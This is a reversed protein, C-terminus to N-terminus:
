NKGYTFGKKTEARAVSIHKIQSNDFRCMHLNAALIDTGLKGNRYKRCIIEALGKAESNENYYEDRYMMFIIDADQEISGSDRLDSMLPRKDNRQEVGRNLQSLVITPCDLERALNKVTRSIQTVRDVSEGKDNLLQLYDIVVLDVKRGVKHAIRRARPLLQGSTLSNTDDIWLARGKLKSAAAAVRSFGDIDDYELQGSELRGHDVRGVSALMRTTLSPRAMELSFVVVFGGSLAVNEAINMALTTKGSSPRGAVVIMDGKRLGQTRRDIDVFGTSLGLMGGQKAWNGELESLTERMCDDVSMPENKTGVQLGGVFEAILAQAKGLKQDTDGDDYGIQTLERGVNCLNRQLYKGRVIEAYHKANATSQNSNLMEALYEVGGAEALKSTDRLEQAVTVVDAAQRRETLAVVAAWIAQHERKYFVKPLLELDVALDPKLLVAAIVAQEADNSHPPTYMALDNM